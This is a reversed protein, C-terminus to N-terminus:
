PAACAAPSADGAKLAAVCAAPDKPQDLVRGQAVWEQIDGELHGLGGYGQGALVEAALAARRGSRCYLVVDRDRPVEAIRAPLQDYPINVAGPVHGSAYEEPTRVDLVLLAADGKRQRELLADPTVTAVEAAVAATAVFAALLPALRGPHM